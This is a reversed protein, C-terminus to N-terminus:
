RGSLGAMATLAGIDLHRELHDALRDLTEEVLREYAISSAERDRIRNLFDQRFADNTFLGHVYCGIIRGDESVAGEPKGDIDLFPHALAPGESRGVHMEYGKVPLGNQLVVGEAEVLTKEDTLTTHMDFWGLGSVSAPEGEIGDPDKLTRGLMQFGGCLGIV